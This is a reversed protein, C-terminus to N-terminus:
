RPTGMISGSAVSAAGCGGPGASRASPAKVGRAGQITSGRTSATATRHRVALGVDVRQSALRGVQGPGRGGGAGATARAPGSRPTAARVAAARTPPWPAPCARTAHRATSPPEARGELVEPRGVDLEALDDRGALPDEGLLQDCSNRRSRSRTGGSGNVTTRRVMSSSRPRGSASTNVENSRVGRAEAEMAWTWEAVSRVPSRTTTLTWRLRTAGSTRSSM